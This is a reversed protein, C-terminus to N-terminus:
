EAAKRNKRIEKWILLTFISALIAMIGWWGVLKLWHQHFWTMYEYIADHVAKLILYIFEMMQEEM